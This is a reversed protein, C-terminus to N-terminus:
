LNVFLVGAVVLVAPPVRRWGFREHFWAVAIITGSIVSTERLASVVALPGHTQAWIVIGYAAVSLLGAGVGAAVTPWSSWVPDHRRKIGAAVALVPGELVFLLAIYAYPNSAHRVGLGDVVSYM